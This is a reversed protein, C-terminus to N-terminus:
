SRSEHLIKRAAEQTLHIREGIPVFLSAEPEGDRIWAVHRTSARSLDHEATRNHDFDRGKFIDCGRQGFLDAPVLSRQCPRVPFRRKGTGVIVDVAQSVQGATRWDNPRHIIKEFLCHFQACAIDMDFWKTGSERHSHPDVAQQACHRGWRSREGLCYNRADLNRAPRLIASRRSGCSPAARRRTALISRSM